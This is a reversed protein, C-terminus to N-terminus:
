VRKGATETEIIRSFTPYNHVYTVSAHAGWFAVRFAEVTDPVGLKELRKGYRRTEEIRNWFLASRHQNNGRYYLQDLIQLEIRQSLAASQLRRTCAKLDKLVSDVQPYLRSPLDSRSTCTLQSAKPNFPSTGKM